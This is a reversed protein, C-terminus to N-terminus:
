YVAQTQTALLAREKRPWVATHAQAKYHYRRGNDLHQTEVASCGGDADEGRFSGRAIRFEKLREYEPELKAEVPVNDGFSVRGKPSRVM